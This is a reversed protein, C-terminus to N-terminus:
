LTWRLGIQAMFPRIPRAGFPRRSAIGEQGLVNEGRLYVQWKEALDYSAMVDVMHIRDTKPTRGDRLGAEELMSDTLGYMGILNFGHGKLGIQALLQHPPVYPLEYGARVSGFQPNDSNFDSDFTGHTYTYTLKLPLRWGKGLEIAHGATVEVGLIKVNGANFQRDIADDVCGASFTCNGTLNSYDNYFFVAEAFGDAVEDFYRLGGEWSVSTEPKVGDSQGPSVPSFGRHVGAFIGFEPKIAYHVGVGPLVVGQFTDLDADPNSSRFGNWILESRVGPTVTLGHGSLAYIAHLAVANASGRNQATTIRDGDGRRLTGDTMNWAVETHHRKIADFHYRAGMEVKHRWAGTIARYRLLTQGGGVVFARANAGIMLAESPDTSNSQGTLIPYYISGVASKPDQLISDLSPGGQFGNIKNWTRDFLHVYASSIIEVADVTMAHSLEVQFRNWSMRDLASAAYRRYPADRFDDDTLGLYTEHSIERSYGLKLDLRHGVEADPDNFLRTKLMVETRSFGTGDYGTPNGGDLVKFGSSELHAVELLVGGRSWGTGVHGHGKFHANHGFDAASGLSLDLGASLKRPVQRTFLNIAGGITQPGYLIAGPGKIVEIGTMRTILPFYYAAPASYPAPGFLIGDEMLTVKQSRDSNAGRIGINPRLGFGDETRTYVGPVPALAAMADNHNAEELEKEDLLHASGASRFLDRRNQRIVTNPLAPGEDEGEAGEEDPTPEVVPPPTQSPATRAEGPPPEPAAPPEPQPEAPADPAPTAEPTSEAAEDPTVDPEDAHAGPAAVGLALGL